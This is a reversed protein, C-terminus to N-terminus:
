SLSPEWTLHESSMDRLSVELHADSARIQIVRDQMNQFSPDDLVHSIRDSLLPDESFNVLAEAANDRVEESEDRLLDILHPIAGSDALALREAANYSMQAVAGSVKEKIESSDDTLLEVLIPIVGSNQVIDILHKYSSLDWLVDAAAVKAASDSGRLIRVLHDFITAANEEFIALICFVDEAIEKGLPECGELLEAYLPIAGAEAVPRIYDIHSSILGLANAAVVKASADGIRILEVLVEVAGLSVLARRAKKVLGLLGIAQAARTRSILSGCRVSEVLFRVSRSNFIARRAEKLLALATLIELLVRRLVGSTSTLLRLVIELGGNRLVIMRNAGAFTVINRLCKLLVKQLSGESDQLLSLLSPIAGSQGIIMSLRGEGQCSICKLCYASAEQISPSQNDSPRRLLEVLIPVVLALINEPAHSSMHALKLTAQIQLSKDHCAIASEYLHFAKEWNISLEETKKDLRSM